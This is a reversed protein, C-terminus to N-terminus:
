KEKMFVSTQLYALWKDKHTGKEDREILLTEKNINQLDRLGKKGMLYTKIATSSALQGELRTRSDFCIGRSNKVPSLVYEEDLEISYYHMRLMVLVIEFFQEFFKKNLDKAKMEDLNTVGYESFLTKMEETCDYDRYKKDKFVTRMGKTHLVWVKDASSVGFAKESLTIEFDQENDNFRVDTIKGLTEKAKKLSDYRFDNYYLNAFGTTPDINATYSPNVFYVIGSQGKLDELSSVPCALQIADGYGKGEEVYCSLRQLLAKQFQQYVNKMNKMRGQVFSGSYDELFIVADYKEQLEVITHIAQSLYGAKIDKIDKSYDWEEKAEAIEKERMTLIGKYDTKVEQRDNKSHIINLSDQELVYGDPDTVVYYLLHREGARVSLMNPRKRLVEENVRRNLEHKNTEENRFGLQVALSLFYKDTMFRKDKCLAYEFVSEKKPNLLNKNAIPENAPHTEKYPLSAKRFTLQSGGSALKLATENSRNIKNLNKESFLEKLLSTFACDKGHHYPSFDKNYIEFLFVEGAEVANRLYSEEIRESFDMRITSRELETYFENTSAYEEPKRFVPNFNKMWDANKQFSEICFQIWEVCSQRDNAEKTYLKKKVIEVIRESPAYLEQNGGALFVKPFMKNLGTLQKYVLQEFGGEQTKAKAPLKTTYEPNLILLYYHGDRRLISSISVGDAFKDYDFSSLCSCKDFYIPFSSKDVSGKTCFNRVMNYIANMEQMKDRMSVVDEIFCSDITELDFVRLTQWILLLKEYFEKVAKRHSLVTESLSVEKMMLMQKEATVADALKDKVANMVSCKASGIGDQALIGDESEIAREVVSLPLLEKQEIEHSDCYATVVRQLKDWKGYVDMSLSSLSSAKVFIGQLDEDSLNYGIIRKAFSLLEDALSLSDHVVTALEQENAISHIVVQKGEKCLPIKDLPKLGHVRATNRQRYENVISNIGSNCADGLLMNYADVGEQSLCLSVEMQAVNNEIAMYLSPYEEKIEALASENQFYREMNEVIRNSISGHETGCLITKSLSDFYKSFYGTFGQYLRILEKEEATLKMSSTDNLLCSKKDNFLDGQAKVLQKETGYAKIVDVIHNKFDKVAKDYRKVAEKDKRNHSDAYLTKLNDYTATLEESALMRTAMSIVQRAYKDLIDKVKGYNKKRIADMSSEGSFKKAYMGTEWMPRAEFKITKMQPNIKTTNEM